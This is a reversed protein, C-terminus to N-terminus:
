VELTRTGNPTEPFRNRLRALQEAMWAEDDRALALRHYLRFALVDLLRLTGVRRWERRIRRRVVSAPERIVVVGSLTAWSAVWRAIGEQHLPADHHCILVVRLPVSEM